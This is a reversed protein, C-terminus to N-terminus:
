AVTSEGCHTRYKAWGDEIRDADNKSLKVTPILGSRMAHDVLIIAVMSEVVAVGRVAIAPDHRGIVSLETPKLTRLDITRQPKRISSTPKFACRVVIPDGTSIGGLIGGSYNFRWRFRGDYILEDMAESGRMRGARFGLGYEFGVVGPISMIAKALDAKLKDFVPDGIGVPPNMAVVEVIGGYSDGEKIASDLLQSFRANLDDNSARTPRKRSCLIDDFSVETDLELPGLAKLHGGIWTNTLMLLKKAVAGAAVRAVTERASARGGGRYDWNEYGYRLIYPLDAHGPRPKFRIEEYHAPVADVNRVIITIPAGTTKGNFIGSIIEPEDPERRKSVYMGGPKRLSLEFIIDERNLPLGAPVGDIVVGVAPGHSEGFTTVRFAVGITNGAVLVM